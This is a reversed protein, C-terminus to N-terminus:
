ELARLAECRLELLQILHHYLGDRNTIKPYIYAIPRLNSDQRPLLNLRIM